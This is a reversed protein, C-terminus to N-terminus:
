RWSCGQLYFVGALRGPFDITTFPTIGGVPIESLM